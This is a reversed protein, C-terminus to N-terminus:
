KKWLNIRDFPVYFVLVSSKLVEVMRKAGATNYSHVVVKDPLLDEPMQSIYKAVFYGDNEDDEGLDHDLFVMDFPSKSELLELAQKSNSAEYFEYFQKPQFFDRVIKRRDESDDLFLIRM